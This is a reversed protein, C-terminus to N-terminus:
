VDANQNSKKVKRFTETSRQWFIEVHVRVQNEIDARMATNVRSIVERASKAHDRDLRMRQVTAQEILTKALFNRLSPKMNEVDGDRFL